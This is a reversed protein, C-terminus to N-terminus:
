EIEHDSFGGNNINNTDSAPFAFAAYAILNWFTRTTQNFTLSVSLAMMGLIAIAVTKRRKVCRFFSIGTLALFSLLGILGQNYVTQIIQNHAVVERWEGYLFLPHMAHIGRGLLLKDPQEVIERLMSIWIDWRGTGGSEVVSELSMREVINEPLFPKFLIWLLLILVLGGTLVVLRKAFGSPYLIAFAAFTVAVALFGGRSGSLFISYMSVAILVLHFVRHKGSVLQKLAITLPFIFFGVFYNPDSTQGMIVLTTRDFSTGDSLLTLLNLIVLLLIQVKEMLDLEERNYPIVSICVYLAANLIYGFVYYLSIEGADCFLTAVVSLTYLLLALHVGNIQLKRNSLILTILFFLGIPITALKLISNGPSNVAISTPLLLFYLCALICHPSIQRNALKQMM